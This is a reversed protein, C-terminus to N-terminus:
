YYDYIVVFVVIKGEDNFNDEVWNDEVLKERIMDRVLELCFFYGNKIICNDLEDM